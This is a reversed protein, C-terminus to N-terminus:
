PSPSRRQALSRLRDWDGAILADKKKRSWGKLQREAAFADDRTGFSESYVLRLPRRTKTYGGLDGAPHQALRLELNDTHGVYYSEDACRLLYVWFAMRAQEGCDVTGQAHRVALIASM